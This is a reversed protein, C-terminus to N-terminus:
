NGLVPFSEDPSCIFDNCRLVIFNEQYGNPFSIITDHINAMKAADEIDKETASLRGKLIM